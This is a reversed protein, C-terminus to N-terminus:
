ILKLINSFSEHWWNLLSGAFRTKLRITWIEIHTSSLPPIMDFEFILKAPIESFELESIFFSTLYRLILLVTDLLAWYKYGFNVIYDSQKYVRSAFSRLINIWTNKNSWKGNWFIKFNNKKKKLKLLEWTELREELFNFKMWWKKWGLTSLPM